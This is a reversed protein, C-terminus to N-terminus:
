DFSMSIAQLDRDRRNFPRALPEGKKNNSSV